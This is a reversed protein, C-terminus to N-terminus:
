SPARDDIQIVGTDLVPSSVLVHLNCGHFSSTPFFLCIVLTLTIYTAKDRSTSFKFKM